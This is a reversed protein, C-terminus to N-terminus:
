IYSIEPIRTLMEVYFILSLPFHLSMEDPSCPDLTEVRPEREPHLSVLIPQCATGALWVYDNDLLVLVIIM